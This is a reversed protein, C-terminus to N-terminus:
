IQCWVAMIHALDALLRTQPTYYTLTVPFATYEQGANLTTINIKHPKNQNCFLKSKFHSNPFELITTKNYFAKSFMIM